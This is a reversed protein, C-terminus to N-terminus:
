KSSRLNYRLQRRPPRVVRGTLVKTTKEAKLPTAVPSKTGKSTGKAVPPATRESNRRKKWLGKLQHCMDLTLERAHDQANRLIKRGEKFAQHSRTLNISYVPCQHYQLSGDDARAAYNAFLNLTTGDTTFTSIEAHGPADSKELCSLAQNRAYVLAAGVYASQLDGKHLDKGAGQFEGALHPLTVSRPNDAYLVAGQINEHVPFPYYEHMRLGEVYDPRPTSLGNNFGVGEPFETLARNFAKSYGRGGYRKLLQRSVEHVITAENADEQVTDLYESYMSRTPSATGRSQAYRKRIDEFNEPPKSLGSELIGNEYAKMPFRSSLTSVTQTTPTYDPQSPDPPSVRKRGKSKAMKNFLKM